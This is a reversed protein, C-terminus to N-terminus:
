RGSSIYSSPSVGTSKKFLKSFYYIDSIGVMSSIENVSYKRTKLLECAYTIRRLTVYKSPSIGNIQTFIKKFYSYSIHSEEALKKYSLEHNFLNENLYKISADIKNIKEKSMYNENHKIKMLALIQYFMSICQEYYGRKRTKWTNNIKIFLQRIDDSNKFDFIFAEKILEDDSDFFIDIYAGPEITDVYYKANKLGKPLLEISDAVFNLSKNNFTTIAHGNLKYILEYRSLDANYNIRKGPGVQSEGSIVTIIEKVTIRENEFLTTKIAELPKMMWGKLSCIM